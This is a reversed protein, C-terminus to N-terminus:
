VRPAHICSQPVNQSKATPIKKMPHHSDLSFDNQCHSGKKFSFAVNQLYQVDVFILIVM